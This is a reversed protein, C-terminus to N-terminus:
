RPRTAKAAPSVAVVDGIYAVVRVRFTAGKSVGLSSWTLSKSTKTTTAVDSWGGTTKVQVIYGEVAAAGVPYTWTVKASKAGTSVTPKGPIAPVPARDVTVTGSAVLATDASRGQSWWARVSGDPM